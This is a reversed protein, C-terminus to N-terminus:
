AVRAGTGQGVKILCLKHDAQFLSLVARQDLPSKGLHGAPYSIPVDVVNLEGKGRDRERHDVIMDALQNRREFLKNAM